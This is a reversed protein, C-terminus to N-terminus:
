GLWAYYHAQSCIQGSDPRSFRSSIKSCVRFAKQLISEDVHHRGEEGAGSNKWRNEQPFVWQWRWDKPANPYKRGLATPMQVRGWGKPKGAVTPAQALGSRSAMRGTALPIADRM